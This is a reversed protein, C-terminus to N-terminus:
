FSARFSSDALSVASGKLVMKEVQSSAQIPMEGLLYYDFRQARADGPPDDEREVVRTLTAVSPTLTWQFRGGEPPHGPREFLLTFAKVSPKFRQVARQGSATELRAFYAQGDEGKLFSWSVTAVVGAPSGPGLPLNWFAQFSVQTSGSAVALPVMALSLTRPKMVKFDGDLRRMVQQMEQELIQYAQARRVTFRYYRWGLFVVGVLLLVIVGLNRVSMMGRNRNM